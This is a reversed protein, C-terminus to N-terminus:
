ISCPEVHRKPRQESEDQICLLGEIIRIIEKNRTPREMRQTEVKALHNELGHYEKANRKVGFSPIDPVKVVNRTNLIKEHGESPDFM